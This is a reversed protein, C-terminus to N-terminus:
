GFCRDAFDSSKDAGGANVIKISYKAALDAPADDITINDTTVTVGACIQGGSM